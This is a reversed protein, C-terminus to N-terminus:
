NKPKTRIKKLTKTEDDMDEELYDDDQYNNQYDNNTSNNTEQDLPNNWRSHIDTDDVDQQAFFVYNARKRSCHIEKEPDVNLVYKKYDKMGKTLQKKTLNPAKYIEGYEKRQESVFIDGDPRLEPKIDTISILSSLFRDVKEIYSTLVQIVDEFKSNKIYSTIMFVITSLIATIIKFVLALTPYDTEKIGFQSVSLLSQIGSFVMIIITLIKVEKQLSDRVIDYIFSQKNGEKIWKTIANTNRSDWNNSMLRVIEQNEIKKEEIEFNINQIDLFLREKTDNIDTIINEIQLSADNDEILNRKKLRTISHTLRSMSGVEISESLDEFEKYDIGNKSCIKKIELMKKKIEHKLERKRYKITQQSIRILYENERKRKRLEDIRDVIKTIKNNNADPDVHNNLQTHDDLESSEIKSKLTDDKSKLTDDKSKSTNNKHDLDMVGDSVSPIRIPIDPDSYDDSNANISNNEM